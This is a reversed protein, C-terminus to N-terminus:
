VRKKFEVRNHICEGVRGGIFPVKEEEGYDEAGEGEGLAVVDFFDDAWNLFDGPVGVL